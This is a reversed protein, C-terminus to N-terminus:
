DSWLSTSAHRPVALRLDADFRTPLLLFACLRREWVVNTLRCAVISKEAAAPALAFRKNPLRRLSTIPVGSKTRSGLEEGDKESLDLWSVFLSLPLLAPRMRLKDADFRV